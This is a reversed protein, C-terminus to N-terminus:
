RNERSRRSVVECANKRRPSPPMKKLEKKAAKDTRNERRDECHVRGEMIRRGGVEGARDGAGSVTEWLAYSFDIAQMFCIARDGARGIM